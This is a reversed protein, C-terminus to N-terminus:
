GPWDEHCPTSKCSEKRCSIDCIGLAGLNKMWESKQLLRENELRNLLPANRLGGESTADAYNRSCRAEDEDLFCRGAACQCVLKEQGKM